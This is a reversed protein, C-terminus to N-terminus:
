GIRNERKSSLGTAVVSAKDISLQAHGIEIDERRSHPSMDLKALADQPLQRLSSNKDILSYSGAWRSFWGAPPVMGVSNKPQILLAQFGRSVNSAAIGVIEAIERLNMGEHALYWALRIVVREAIFPEEQYSWGDDSTHFAEIMVRGVGLMHEGALTLNDLVIALAACPGPECTRVEVFAVCYDRLWTLDQKKTHQIYIVVLADRVMAKANLDALAAVTDDRKLDRYNVVAFVCTSPKLYRLTLPVGEPAFPSIRRCDSIEEMGFKGTQISANAYSKVLEAERSGLAHILTIASVSCVPLDAITGDVLIGDVVAAIAVASLTPDSGTVLVVGKCPAKKSLPARERDVKGKASATDPILEGPPNASATNAPAANASRPTPNPPQAM